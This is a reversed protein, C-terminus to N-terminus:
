ELIGAIAYRVDRGGEGTRRLEIRLLHVDVVPIQFEVPLELAIIEELLLLDGDGYIRLFANSTGSGGDVRGANVTLMRFQGRLNHLSYNPTNWLNYYMVNHFPITSMFVTDEIRSHPPHHPPVLVTLPGIREARDEIENALDRFIISSPLIVQAQRVMNLADVTQRGFLLENVREMIQAEYMSIAEELLILVEPSSTTVVSLLQVAARYNGAGIHARAQSLRDEGLITADMQMLMNQNELTSVRAQLSLKEELISTLAQEYEMSAHVSDFHLSLFEVTDRQVSNTTFLISVFVSSLTFIAAILTVIAAKFGIKAAKKDGSRDLASSRQSRYDYKM